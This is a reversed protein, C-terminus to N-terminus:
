LTGSTGSSPTSREREAILRDLLMFPDTVFPAQLPWTVSVLSKLFKDRVAAPYNKHTSTPLDRNLAFGFDWHGRFGFLGAALIDFEGKLLCTTHVDGHGPVTITRRDSADCQVSGTFTATQLFDSGLAVFDPNLISKSEKKVVRKVPQGVQNFAVVSNTQLSKSELKFRHGRYEVVLDGKNERDHDDDKYLLSVGPKGAFLDRLKTEAIYGVMMGRLSPNELVVKTLYEPTIDWIDLITRAPPIDAM